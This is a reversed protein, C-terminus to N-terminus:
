NLIVTELEEFARSPPPLEAVNYKLLLLEVLAVPTPTADPVPALSTVM